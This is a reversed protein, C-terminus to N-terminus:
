RAFLMSYNLLLKILKGVVPVKSVINSLRAADSASLARVLAAIPPYAVFVLVFAIILKYTTYISSLLVPLLVLALLANALLVKYVRKMKIKIGEKSVERLYLYDSLLAGFFYLVAIAGLAGFRPILLFALALESIGITASFELVRKVKAKGLVFSSAPAGLMTFLVSFSMLAIYVYVSTYEPFVTLMIAHAFMTFFLVFPTGFLFIVYLIYSFISSLESSHRDKALMGSFFPLMVILSGTFVGLISAVKSAVGYNGVTSSLTYIGLLIVAINSPLSGIFNSGAIPLSFSFISRARKLLNGVRLKLRTHRSILLLLVLTGIVLGSFLGLVAGLVGYGLLVLTISVATQTLTYVASALASGKGDNFGILAGHGTGYLMSFLIGSVAVCLVLLESSSHFILNSLYGSALLGIIVIALSLLAITIFGSSVIDSLEQKDKVLTVPIQRELYTAVGFNGVAGFAGAISVAIIYVGYGSPGLLRAIVIFAAGYVLLTFIGSFALYSATSTAVAGSEELEEISEENQEYDM